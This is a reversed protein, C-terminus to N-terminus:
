RCGTDTLLLHCPTGRGAQWKVVASGTHADNMRM